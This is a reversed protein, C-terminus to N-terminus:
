AGGASSPHRDVWRSLAVAEEVDPIADLPVFRYGMHRLIPVLLRTTALTRNNRRITEDESSDHMLVIGRRIREIRDLYARVCEEPTAGRKWFDYDAASIDWNIPGVYDRLRESANLRSAVISTARDRGNEVERWNGYPPRFFVPQSTVFDRMVADTKVLEEVVDGGSLAMAVLGPHTFTHNAVLHGGAQLSQLVHTRGVAHSGVVFFTAAIGQKSLFDGLEATDDGPGDDYTLCLTGAPLCTGRIDRHFFM